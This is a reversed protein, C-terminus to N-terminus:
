LEDQERRQGEGRQNWKNFKGHIQIIRAIVADAKAPYRLLFGGEGLLLYGVEVM